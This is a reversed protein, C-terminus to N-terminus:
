TTVMINAMMTATAVNGVITVPSSVKSVELTIGDPDLLTLKIKLRKFRLKKLLRKVM